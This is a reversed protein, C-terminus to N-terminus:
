SGSAADLFILSLWKEKHRKVGLHSTHLIGGKKTFTSGWFRTTHFSCIAKALEVNEIEFQLWEDASGGIGVPKAGVAELNELKRPM